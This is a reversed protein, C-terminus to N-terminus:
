LLSEVSFNKGFLNEATTILEFLRNNLLTNEVRSSVIVKQAWVIYYDRREETWGVPTDLLVDALNCLKDATRVLAAKPSLVLADSIERAKDLEKIGTEPVTLEVTLAAIEEGFLARIEDSTTDTDEITDHLIAAILTATDTIGADILLEAVAVPHVIYPTRRHDKRRQDRHKDAAFRIAQFVMKDM